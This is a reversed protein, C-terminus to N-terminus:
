SGNQMTCGVKCWDPWAEFNVTVLYVGPNPGSGITILDGGKLMPRVIGDFAGYLCISRQVSQINLAEVKRIDATSLPQVQAQVAIPDAYAPTQTGDGGTPLAYGKSVLVSAVVNPNVATIAGNAIAHLNM